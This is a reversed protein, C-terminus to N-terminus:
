ACWHGRSRIILAGAFGFRKGQREVAVRRGNLASGLCGFGGVRWIQWGCEGVPRPGLTEVVGSAFDGFAVVGRDLAEVEAVGHRLIHRQAGPAGGLRWFATTKHFAWTHLDGGRFALPLSLPEKKFFLVLFSQCM